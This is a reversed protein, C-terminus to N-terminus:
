LKYFSMGRMTGYGRFFANYIDAFYEVKRDRVNQECAGDYFVKNAYKGNQPVNGTAVIRAGLACKQEQGDYEAKISEEYETSELKVYDVNITLLGDAGILGLTICFSTVADIQPLAIALGAAIISLLTTVSSVDKVHVTRIDTAGAPYRRVFVDAKPTYYFDTRIQSRFSIQGFKVYPPTAAEPGGESPKTEESTIFSSFPIEKTNSARGKSSVDTFLLVKKNYDIETSELLVNDKTLAVLLNGNELASISLVSGDEFTYSDYSQIADTTKSAAFCPTFMSVAVAIFLIMAVIRKKM